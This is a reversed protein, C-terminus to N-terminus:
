QIYNSLFTHVKTPDGGSITNDPIFSTNGKNWVLIVPIGNVMKKSKFYSYVDANDDVDVDFCLINDPANEFKDYVIQKINKCPGCWDATFKIIIFGPNNPLINNLLFNRDQIKTYIM